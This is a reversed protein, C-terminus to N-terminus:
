LQTKRKESGGKSEITEIMAELDMIEWRIFRKLIQYPNEMAKPLCQLEDKLHLKEKNEFLMYQASSLNIDARSQDM